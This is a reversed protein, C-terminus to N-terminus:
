VLDELDRIREKFAPHTSFYEALGSHDPAVRSLRELANLSARADFGAAATLRVAERDAEQELVRSYGKSVIQRILQGAGALRASVANLLTKATLQDKAHGKLVHAMEHGLFFALTDSDHEVLDLLSQTIFVFGGPLAYANITPSAVVTFRFHLRPDKVAEALRSGISNVLDQDRRSANGPFQKIFEHACERGYDREALIAEEETGSAWSWLWKAQRYPKRAKRGLQDGLQPLLRSGFLLLLILVIILVPM